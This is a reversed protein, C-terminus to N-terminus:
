GLTPDVIDKQGNTQQEQEVLMAITPIKCLYKGDTWMLPETRGIRHHKRRFETAMRGYGAVAQLEM